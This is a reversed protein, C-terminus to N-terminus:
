PASSLTLSLVVMELGSVGIDVGAGVDVDAGAGVDAGKDIPWAEVASLVVPLLGSCFFSMGVNAPTTLPM